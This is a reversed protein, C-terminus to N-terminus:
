VKVAVYVWAPIGSAMKGLVRQYDAVEYKDSQALEEASIEFVRGLICESQHARAIPHYTEGSLKVVSTDKIEVMALKYGLLKDEYGTLKRGFTQLQVEINQLTGYSFLLVSNNM